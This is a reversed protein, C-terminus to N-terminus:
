EKNIDMSYYDIFSKIENILLKIRVQYDYCNEYLNWNLINGNALM